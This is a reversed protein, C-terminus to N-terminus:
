SVPSPFRRWPSSVTATLMQTPFPATFNAHLRAALKHLASFLTHAVAPAPGRPSQQRARRAKHLKLLNHSLAILSWEQQVL